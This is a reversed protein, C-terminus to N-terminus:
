VGAGEAVELQIFDPLAYDQASDWTFEREDDQAFGSRLWFERCPANKKTALYSARVSAAGRARAWQVAIHAMSEEIRRGMVRCSLVFDVIRCEDGEIALGLLGTLGASGFRDSVTITLLAHAPEGAWEALERESLRRTSLNMQNTKNLLQTARALTSSGLPEVQLRIGLTALWDDLSGVEQRLSDRRREAAYMENRALDEASVRPADFCRLKLLEAPYLLKDEPWEPVLVEPLAERVRAREIPNDDIFVVSQLGLNLEAALDAVNRAKDSWNIRWGALDDPRLVMEPHARMAELAISETNKSVVALLIGRKTLAKLARQFDVFAEGAADHGGLQLNEWGVDGVIGGWLTDDLDLVVLKRAQGALGRMAAKLDAAAEAFVDAHFPVKGLYWGKAATRNRGASAALWRQADLVYVNAANGLREMLRQNMLALAWTVGGPRADIMGLGRRHAAMTWTVVFLQRYRTAGQEVLQVFADVDAILEADAAREGDLLRQFSPSTIEPRTWALLFDSAGAPPPALLWQATQCFPADAVIMVPEEAPDRLRVALDGTTFDALVIGTLAPGSRASAASVPAGPAPKGAADPADLPELADVADLSRLVRAPIGGAVVRPPITGSVISGATIVAGAGIRTGPLLTVRGALWAGEGIEVPASAGSGAEREPADADNIICYPGIGVDDGITIASAAAITTGYNVRVNRGLRIVAGPMAILEVASFESNLIVGAGIEITGRNDIRPRGITRAGAGVRDCGRLNGRAALRAGAFRAVRRVREALPLDRDRALRDIAKRISSPIM